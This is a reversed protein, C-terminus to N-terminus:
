KGAFNKAVWGGGGVGGGDRQPEPAGTCMCLASILLLMLPRQGSGQSRGMEQGLVLGVSNTVVCSGVHTSFLQVLIRMCLDACVAMMTDM